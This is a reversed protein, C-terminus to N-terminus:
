YTFKLFSHNINMRFQYCLQEKSGCSQAIDTETNHKKKDKWDHPLTIDTDSMDKKQKWGHPQAIDTETVHREEAELWM